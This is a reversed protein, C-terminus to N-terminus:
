TVRAAARLFLKARHANEPSRWLRDGEGPVVAAMFTAGDLRAESWELVPAAKLRFSKRAWAGSAIVSRGDFPASDSPFGLEFLEALAGSPDPNVTRRSVDLQLLSAFRDATATCQFPGCGPDPDDGILLVQERHGLARLAVACADAVHEADAVRMGDLLESAGLVLRRVARGVVRKTAVDCGTAARKCDRASFYAPAGNGAAQLKPRPDCRMTAGVLAAHGAAYMAAASANRLQEYREANFSEAGAAVARRLELDLWRSLALVREANSEAVTAADGRESRFLRGAVLQFPFPPESQDVFGTARLHALGTTALGSDVGVASTPWGFAPEPLRFTLKGDRSM